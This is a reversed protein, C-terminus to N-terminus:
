EEATSGCQGIRRGFTFQAPEVVLNHAITGADRLDFAAWIPATIGFTLSGMILGTFAMPRMIFVDFSEPYACDDLSDEYGIAGAKTPLLALAGTLALAVTTTRILKRM